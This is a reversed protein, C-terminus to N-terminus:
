FSSRDQHRSAGSRARASHATSKKRTGSKRHRALSVFFADSLPFTPRLLDALRNSSVGSGGRCATGLPLSGLHWKRHLETPGIRNTTRIHRAKSVQKSRM